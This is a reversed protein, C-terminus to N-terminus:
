LPERSRLSPEGVPDVFRSNGKEDKLWIVTENFVLRFSLGEISPLAQQLDETNRTSRFRRRLFLTWSIPQLVRYAKPLEALREM